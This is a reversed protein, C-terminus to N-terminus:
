RNKRQENEERWDKLLKRIANYDNDIMDIFCTTCYSDIWYIPIAPVTPQKAIFKEAQRFGYYEEYQYKEEEFGMLRLTEDADILRM